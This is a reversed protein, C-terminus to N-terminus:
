HEHSRYFWSHCHWERWGYHEDWLPLAMAITFLALFLATLAVSEIRRWKTALGTITPVTALVWALFLYVDSWEPKYHTQLFVTYAVLLSALLLSAYRVVLLVAERKM